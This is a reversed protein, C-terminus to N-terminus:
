LCINKWLWPGGAFRGQAHGSGDVTLLNTFPQRLDQDGELNPPALRRVDLGQDRIPSWREGQAVAKPSGMLDQSSSPGHVSTM